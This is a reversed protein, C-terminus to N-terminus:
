LVSSEANSQQRQTGHLVACYGGAQYEAWEPSIAVM